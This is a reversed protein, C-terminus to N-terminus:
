GRRAPSEFNSVPGTSANRQLPQNPEKKRALCASEGVVGRLSKKESFRSRRSAAVKKLSALHESADGVFSEAGIAM